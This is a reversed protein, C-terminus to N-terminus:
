SINRANRAPLLAPHGGARPGPTPPKILSGMEPQHRLEWSLIVGGSSTM